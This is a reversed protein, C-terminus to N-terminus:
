IGMLKRRLETDEAMLKGFLLSNEESTPRVRILSRTSPDFAVTRLDGADMEGYGKIHHLETTKPAGMAKLKARLKEKTRGFVSEKGVKAYYEPARAVYVIGQEFLGPMVRWLLGLELCNIHHGDPDPDSLLIVKGVRLKKLPDEADPDYGLLTLINLVEESLLIAEIDKARVANKIKGRIPLCEQYRKDRAHKCTNHM